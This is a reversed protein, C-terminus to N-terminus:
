QHPAVMVKGMNVAEDFLQEVGGLAFSHRRAAVRDGPGVAGIDDRVIDFVM